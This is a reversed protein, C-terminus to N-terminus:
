TVSKADRLLCLEITLVSSGPSDHHHCLCTFSLIGGFFLSVLWSQHIEYNREAIFLICVRGGGHLVTICCRDCLPRRQRLYAGVYIGRGMRKLCGTGGVLAWHFFVVGVLDVHSPM